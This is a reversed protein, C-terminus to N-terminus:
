ILRLRDEGESLWRRGFLPVDRSGMKKELDTPNLHHSCVISGADHRKNRRPSLDSSSLDRHIPQGAPREIVTAIRQFM